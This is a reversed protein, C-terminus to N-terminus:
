MVDGGLRADAALALARHARAADVKAAALDPGSQPGAASPDSPAASRNIGRTGRRPTTRRKLEQRQPLGRRRKLDRRGGVLGLVTVISLDHSGWSHQARLVLHPQHPGCVTMLLVCWM